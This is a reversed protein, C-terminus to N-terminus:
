QEEQTTGVCGMCVVVPRRETGGGTGGADVRGTEVSTRDLTTPWDAERSLGDRPM